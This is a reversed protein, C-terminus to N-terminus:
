KLEQLQSSELTITFRSGSAPVASVLVTAGPGFASLPYSVEGQHAVVSQGNGSQFTMAKLENKIPAIAKGDREVVIEVIDPAEVRNVGVSVVVADVWPVEAVPRRMRLHEVLARRYGMFPTTLTIAIDERRLISIPFSEFNGWVERVRKDLALVLETPDGKARSEAEKAFARVRAATMPEVRQALAGTPPLM